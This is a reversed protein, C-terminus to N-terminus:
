GLEWEAFITIWEDKLREQEHDPLDDWDADEYGDEQSLWHQFDEQEFKENIEIEKIRDLKDLLAYSVNPM